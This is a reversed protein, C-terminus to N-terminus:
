NENARIDLIWPYEHVRVISLHSRSEKNRFINELNSSVKNRVFITIYFLTAAIYSREEDREARYYKSSSLFTSHVRSGETM